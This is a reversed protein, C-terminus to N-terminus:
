ASVAESWNKDMFVGKWFQVADELSEMPTEARLIVSQPIRISVVLSDKM